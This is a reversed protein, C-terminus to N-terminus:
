KSPSEARRNQGLSPVVDGATRLSGITTSVVRFVMSIQEVPRAWERQRFVDVPPQASREELSKPARGVGANKRRWGSAVEKELAADLGANCSALYIDAALARANLATRFVRPLLSIGRPSGLRNSYLSRTLRPSGLAPYRVSLLFTGRYGEAGLRRRQNSARPTCSSADERRWAQLAWVDSQQVPVRAFRHGAPM